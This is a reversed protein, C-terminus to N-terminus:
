TEFVVHSHPVIDGAAFRAIGRYITAILNQIAPNDGSLPDKLGGSADLSIGERRLLCVLSWFQRQVKQGLGNIRSEDEKVIKKVFKILGRRRAAEERRVSKVRQSILNARNERWSEHSYGVQVHSICKRKSLLPYKIIISYRLIHYSIVRAYSEIELNLRNLLFLFSFFSAFRFFLPSNYRMFKFTIFIKYNFFVLSRTYECCKPIIM